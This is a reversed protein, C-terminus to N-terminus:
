NLRALVFASVTMASALFATKITRMHIVRADHGIGAHQFDTEATLREEEKGGM